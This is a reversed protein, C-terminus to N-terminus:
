LVWRMKKRRTCSYTHTHTHTHARTCIHTHTQHINTYINIHTLAYTYEHLHISGSTMTVHRGWNKELKHKLDISVQAWWRAQLGRLDAQKERGLGPDCVQAGAIL